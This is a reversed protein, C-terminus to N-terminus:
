IKKNSNTTTKNSISSKVNTAVTSSNDSKKQNLKERLRDKTKSSSANPNLDGGMQQMKALNGINIGALGAGDLMKQCEAMCEDDTKGNTDERFKMQKEMINNLMSLPNMGNISPAGKGDGCQTALQQTSKWLKTVDVNKNKMKPVMREAVTEAIKVIKEIPNGVQDTDPSRKLEDTIDTLMDTLMDSTNQDVNKGLLKKINNTAQEIEDTNINKLEKALEDMNLMNGIGLMSTLGGTASSAQEGPLVKPGSMIDDMSFDNVPKQEVGDDANIGVYPNFDIARVVPEFASATVSVGASEDQKNEVTAPETNSLKIIFSSSIQLVQLYLWMKDKQSQTLNCWIEALNIGPFVNFNVDTFLSENKSDLYSKYKTSIKNYRAIVMAMNLKDLALVFKKTGSTSYCTDLEIIFSRLNKVFDNYYQEM